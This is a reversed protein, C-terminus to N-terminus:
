VAHLMVDVTLVYRERAPEYTTDPLRAHGPFAVRTVVVGDAQAGEMGKLIARVRRALLSAEAQGTFAAQAVGGAYCDLQLAYDILYDIGSTPSDDAALQTVRVWPSTMSSPTRGAVRAGMMTVNPHERLWGGVLAEADPIPDYVTAARGGEGTPLLLALISM